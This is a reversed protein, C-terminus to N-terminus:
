SAHIELENIEYETKILIFKKTIELLKKTIIPYKNSLM